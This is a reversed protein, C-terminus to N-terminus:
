KADSGGGSQRKLLSQMMDDLIKLDRADLDKAQRFMRSIQVDAGAADVQEGVLYSVTVGFYDALKTVLGMAPNEAKGKEMQWIHAKSVGVADAVEQLSKRKSMRLEAIRSGVSM